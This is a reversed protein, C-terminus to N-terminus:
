RIFHCLKLADPDRLVLFLVQYLDKAEVEQEETLAISLVGSGCADIDSELSYELSKSELYSLDIRSLIDGLNEEGKRAQYWLYITSSGLAM